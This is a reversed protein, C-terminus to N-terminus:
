CDPNDYFLGGIKSVAFYAIDSDYRGNEWGYTEPTVGEDLYTTPGTWSPKSAWRGTQTQRIFHFSNIVGSDSIELRLAIRWEFSFIESDYSSICRGCMFKDQWLDYLLNNKVEEFVPASYTSGEKCDFVAGEMSNIAYGYCNPKTYFNGDEGTIPYGYYPVYAPASGYDSVLPTEFTVSLSPSITESTLSFKTFEAYGGSYAISLSIFFDTLGAQRASIAVSTVDLQLNDGAPITQIWSSYAVNQADANEVNYNLYTGIQINAMQSASKHLSFTANQISSSSFLLLPVKIVSTYWYDVNFGPYLTERRFGVKHTSSSDFYNELSASPGNLVSTVQYSDMKGHYSYLYAPQGSYSVASLLASTLGFLSFLM